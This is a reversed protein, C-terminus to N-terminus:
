QAKRLQFVLFGALVLAGIVFTARTTKKVNAFLEELPNSFLEFGAAGAGAEEAAQRVAEREVEGAKISKTTLNDVSVVNAWRGAIKEAEEVVQAVSVGSQRVNVDVVGAKANAPPRTSIPFTFQAGEEGWRKWAEFVANPRSIAIFGGAREIVFRLQDGQPGIRRRLIKGPEAGPRFEVAM